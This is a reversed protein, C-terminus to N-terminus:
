WMSTNALHYSLSLGLEEGEKGIETVWTSQDFHVM